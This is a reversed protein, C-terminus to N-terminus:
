PKPSTKADDKIPTMGKDARMAAREKEDLKGDKNTDYKRLREARRSKKEETTRKPKPTPTPEPALSPAPTVASVTPAAVPSAAPDVTPTPSATQAFSAGVPALALLVSVILPRLALSPQM